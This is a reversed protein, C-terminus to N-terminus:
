RGSEALLRGGTITEAFSFRYGGLVEVPRLASLEEWPSDFLELTASGRWVDAVAQDRSGGTVLEDVSGGHEAWAPFIRSHALPATMLDPVTDAPEELCVELRALREDHAALTGGLRTGPAPACGARGVPFSRTMGISGLKKPYGQVLGRVLSFDKDVWCFPARVVFDGTDARRASLAIYFEHYRSRVPEVLESGDDTCSQWDGVIAAARPRDGDPVLGAPLFAALVDPDVTYEVLLVDGSFHWPPPPVLNATGRPSLPATYGALRQNTTTTM